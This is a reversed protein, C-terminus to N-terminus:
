SGDIDADYLLGKARLVPLRELVAMQPVKWDPQNTSGGHFVLAFVRIVLDPHYTSPQALTDFSSWAPHDLDSESDLLIVVQLSKTHPSLTAIVRGYFELDVVPIMFELYVLQSMARLLDRLGSYDGSVRLRLQLDQITNRSATTLLWWIFEGLWTTSRTTWIALTRLRLIKARKPGLIWPLTRYEAWELDGVGLHKLSPLSLLIRGFQSFTPFSCGEFTLSTITKFASVVQVGLPDFAVSQIGSLELATLRPLKSPLTLTVKSVWTPTSSTDKTDVVIRLERLCRARDPSHVVEDVLANLDKVCHLRAQRLSQLCHRSKPHWARCTLTCSILTQPHYWLSEIVIEWVEIPLM